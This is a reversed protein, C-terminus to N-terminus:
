PRAPAMEFSAFRAKAGAVGGVTLGVRLSRDWPPLNDGHETGGIATWKKGNNSAEFRFTEGNTTWLRLHIKSTKPITASTLTRYQGKDCRWLVIADSRVALGVANAPDGIAALGATVGPKLATMDVLTSAKYDGSRTARAIVAAMLNTDNSTSGFELERSGFHYEPENQQPWEWGAQLEKQSFRDIFGTM